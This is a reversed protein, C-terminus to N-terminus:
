SVQYLLEGEPGEDGEAGVEEEPEAPVDHGEVVHGLRVLLEHGLDLESLLVQPTQADIYVLFLFLSLFFSYTTRRHNNKNFFVLFFSLLSSHFYSFPSLLPSTVVKLTPILSLHSPSPSPLHHLDLLLFFSCILLEEKQLRSKIQAQSSNSVPQDIFNEWM